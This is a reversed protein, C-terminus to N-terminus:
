ARYAIKQILIIRAELDQNNILVFVPRFVNGSSGLIQPAM